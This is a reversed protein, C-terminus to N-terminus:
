GFNLIIKFKERVAPNVATRHFFILKCGSVAAIGNLGYFIRHVDNPVYSTHGAATSVLSSGIGM